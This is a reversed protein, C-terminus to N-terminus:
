DLFAHICEQSDSNKTESYSVSPQPAFILAALGNLFREIVYTLLDASFPAFGPSLPERL